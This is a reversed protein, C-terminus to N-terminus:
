EENQYSTITINAPLGTETTLSSIINYTDSSIPVNLTVPNNTNTFINTASKISSSNIKITGTINTCGNFTNDLITINSPIESVTKLNTCNYFLYSADNENSNSSTTTNEVYIFKINRGFNVEKITTNYTFLGSIKTYTDSSTELYISSLVKVNYIKGEITYTSPIYVSESTGNYKVLLIEDSSITIGDVNLNQSTNTTPNYFSITNLTSVQDGLYYTFESVKTAKSSEQYNKIASETDINVINKGSSNSGSAIAYIVLILVAGLIFITTITKKNEM